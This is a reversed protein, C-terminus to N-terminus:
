GGYQAIFKSMRKINLQMRKKWYCMKLGKDLRGQIFHHEKKLTYISAEESQHGILGRKSSSSIGTACNKEIKSINNMGIRPTAM